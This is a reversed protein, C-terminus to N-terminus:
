AAKGANREALRKLVDEAKSRLPAGCGAEALKETMSAPNGSTEMEAMAAATVEFERQRSRLRQLTAEADSLANMATDPGTHRLTQTKEVATVVRQGRELEKLRSEANRLITKLRTIETQFTTQAQLSAEREAELTAITEAAERALETKGQEMAAVTREELDAIQREMKQCQTAEQDNQATAIAIAKRAQVMAEGCDRMQQRLIALANRDVVAEQAEHARGRFLTVFQKFM